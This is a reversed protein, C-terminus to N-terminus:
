TLIRSLVCWIMCHCMGAIFRTIPHQVFTFGCKSQIRTNPESPIEQLLNQSTLITNEMVKDASNDIKVYIANTANDFTDSALVKSYLNFKQNQLVSGISERSWFWPVFSNHYYSISSLINVEHSDLLADKCKEILLPNGHIIGNDREYIVNEDNIDKTIMSSASNPTDSIGNNNITIKPYIIDEEPILEFPSGFSPKILDSGSQKMEIMVPKDEDDSEKDEIIPEPRTHTKPPPQKPTQQQSSTASSMGNDKEQQLQSVKEKLEHIIEQQSEDKTRLEDIQKKIQEFEHAHDIVIDGPSEMKMTTSKSITALQNYMLLLVIVLIGIIILNRRNKIPAMIEPPKKDKWMKQRKTHSNFIPMVNNSICACIM